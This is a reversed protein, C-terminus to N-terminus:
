CGALARARTRANLGNVDQNPGCCLFDNGYWHLPILMLGDTRRPLPRQGERAATHRKATYVRRVQLGRAFTGSSRVTM